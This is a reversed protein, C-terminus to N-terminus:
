EAKLPVDVKDAETPGLKGDVNPEINHERLQAQSLLCELNHPGCVSSISSGHIGDQM